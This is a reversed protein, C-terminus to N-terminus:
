RRGLTTERIHDAVILWESARELDGVEVMRRIGAKYGDLYAHKEGIPRERIADVIQEFQSM